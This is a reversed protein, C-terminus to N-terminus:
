SGMPIEKTSGPIVSCGSPEGNLFLIADESSKCGVCFQVFSSAHESELEREIERQAQQSSSPQLMPAPEGPQLGSPQAQGELQAQESRINQLLARKQELSKQIQSGTQTQKETQELQSLQQEQQSLEQETLQQTETQIDQLTRGEQARLQRLQRRGEPTCQPCDSQTDLIPAPNEPTHPQRALPPPSSPQGPQGGFIGRVSRGVSRLYNQLGDIIELAGKATVSEAIHTLCQVARADAIPNAGESFVATAWAFLCQALDAYELATLYPQLRAVWQQLEPPLEGLIGPLSSPAQPTSVTTVRSGPRTDRLPRLSLPIPQPAPPSSPSSSGGLQALTSDIRSGSSALESTLAARIAADLESVNRGSAPLGRQQLLTNIAGGIWARIQSQQAPNSTSLPVGNKVYIALNSALQQIEPLRSQALRQIGQVSDLLKPKGAFSPILGTLSAIDFAIFPIATFPNTGLAIEAAVELPAIALSAATLGSSIAGLTSGSSPSALELAKILAAPKTLAQTQLSRSILAKRALPTQARGLQAIYRQFNTAGAAM